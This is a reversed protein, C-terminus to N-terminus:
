WWLAQNVNGAHFCLYKKPSYHSDLFPFSGLLMVLKNNLPHTQRVPQVVMELQQLQTKLKMLCDACQANGPLINERLCFYVDQPLSLPSACLQSQDAGRSSGHPHACPPLFMSSGDAM